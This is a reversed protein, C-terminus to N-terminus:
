GFFGLMLCQNYTLKAGFKWIVWDFILGKIFSVALCGFQECSDRKMCGQTINSQQWNCVAYM